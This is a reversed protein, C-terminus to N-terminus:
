GMPIRLLENDGNIVTFLFWEPLDTWRTEITVNHKHALKKLIAQGLKSDRWPLIANLYLQQPDIVKDLDVQLV